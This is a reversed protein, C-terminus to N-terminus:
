VSPWAIVVVLTAKAGRSPFDSAPVNLNGAKCCWCSVMVAASCWSLAGCAFATLAASLLLCLLDCPPLCALVVERGLLALLLEWPGCGSCSKLLRAPAASCLLALLLTLLGEFPPTEWCASLLECPAALVEATLLERCCELGQVGASWIMAWSAYLQAADVLVPSCLMCCPIGLEAVLLKGADSISADELPWEM